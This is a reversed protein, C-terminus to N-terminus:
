STKSPYEAMKAYGFLVSVLLDREDNGYAIIESGTRANVFPVLQDPTIGLHERITKLKEPL